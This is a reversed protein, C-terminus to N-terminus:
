SGSAPSQQCKPLGWIRISAARMKTQRGMVQLAPHCCVAGWGGAGLDGESLKTGSTQTQAWAPIRVTLCGPLESAPSALDGTQSDGREVM